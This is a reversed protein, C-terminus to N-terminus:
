DVYVNMQRRGNPRILSAKRKTWTEGFFRHMERRWNLKANQLKIREYKIM